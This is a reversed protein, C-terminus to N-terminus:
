GFINKVVPTNGCSGNKRAEVCGFSGACCNSCWRKQSLYFCADEGLIIYAQSTFNINYTNKVLRAVAYQKIIGVM